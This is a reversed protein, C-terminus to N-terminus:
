VVSSAHYTLNVAVGQVFLNATQRSVPGTVLPTAFTTTKGVVSIVPAGLIAADVLRDAADWYEAAQYDVGLTLDSQNNFVYRYNLGLNAALNPTIRRSNTSFNAQNTGPLFINIDGRRDISRSGSFNMQQQSKMHLDEILLAGSVGGELNVGAIIPYAGSIGVVPGIGSFDSTESAVENLTTGSYTLSTPAIVTTLPPRTISCNANLDRKVDAYRLGLFPHLHLNTGVDIYQGVTADVQNINISSKASSTGSQACIGALNNTFYILSLGSNMTSINNNGDADLHWYSLNVDNGTNPFVYGLTAGYGWDFGPEVAKIVSSIVATPATSNTPINSIVAYDLDGNSTSPKAYIGEVGVIVGGKLQPVTVNLQAAAHLSIGSLGITALILSLRKM